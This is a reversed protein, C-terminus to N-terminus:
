LKTFVPIVAGAISNIYRNGNTDWTMLLGGFRSEPDGLLAMLRQVEWLADKAEMKVERTEGPQIGRDDDITLGTAVLERPYDPDLHSQGLKNVFRVGATTFEGISVASDGNNTIEMTVRLARGPVDYNAHTIKIAVPNPAIPMPEVKSEGAQIPVTYPHVSETYRYGGWVLACTLIAVAMGVKRDMPSTLLEDGYALLVRSRPLFMPKAVFYGIWFCGLGLWVLHWFIGNSFNFTELDINKGTLTTIPNTFDDWSGSINMWSAPGAIPGADKVNVMAHMHHRGPIRAKLKVEFEYDRGIELPGSIFTPHGNLKTSLRVFVPSPSGVNFFARGPKGVARPWDEALHFKGTMTAIDNVKTVKPQWKMDYWQISRMRLFPEQSREGHASATKVDVALTMALSAAGIAAGYLGIVGLKVISKISM